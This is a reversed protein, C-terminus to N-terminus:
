GQEKRLVASKWFSLHEYDCVGIETQSQLSVYRSVGLASSGFPMRMRFTTAKPSQHTPLEKLSKKVPTSRVLSKGPVPRLRLRRSLTLSEADGASPLVFIRRVLAPVNAPSEIRKLRDADGRRMYKASRSSPEEAQAKRKAAIEAKLAKM